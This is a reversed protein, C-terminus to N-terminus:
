EKAVAVPKPMEPGVAWGHPLELERAKIREFEEPTIEVIVSSFDIGRDPYKGFYLPMIGTAITDTNIELLKIPEDPRNEDEASGVLRFIHTMGDEVTYHIDALEKAFEEKSRM